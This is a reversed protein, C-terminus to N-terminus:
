CQDADVLPVITLGPIARLVALPAAAIRQAHLLHCPADYTVTLAVPSGPCPGAAALLETADRVKMALAQARDRWLPDKDLLTGYEKMAAGCGSANVATFDL